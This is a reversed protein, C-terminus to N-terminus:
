PRQTVLCSDLKGNRLLSRIREADPGPPRDAEHPAVAERVISLTRSAADSPRGTRADLAACAALLEYALVYEFTEVMEGIADLVPFVLSLYDEQGASAEGVFLSTPQCRAKARATLEISAKHALVLGADLGPRAALQPSLGTRVPDMLRHLRHQGLAGAHALALRLHEAQNLLHQDHFGGHSLLREGQDDSVLVPNDTFTQMARCIEARFTDLADSLAGLVQAVIRYSVPAQLKAGAIASGARYRHLRDLAYRIGPRPTLEILAPDTASAPAALAEMSTAAVLLARELWAAAQRHVEIAYAISAGLGSILALGEKDVPEFPATGQRGLEAAAPLQEGGAGIVFGEGVLTQFCHSHAVADGAMGHGLKPIWPTFGENLRAVVYDCLAPRVGDRGSGFNILKLMMTARSMARTHPPGTAAARGLLINRALARSAEADLQQESLTGLGTNVGYIPAGTALIAEFRSRGAEVAELFDDALELRADQWAVAVVSDWTIDRWSTLRIPAHQDARAKEDPLRAHGGAAPPEPM